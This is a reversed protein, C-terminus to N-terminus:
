KLLAQLGLRAEETRGSVCNSKISTNTAAVHAQPNRHGTKRRGQAHMWVHPHGAQTCALEAMLHSRLSGEPFRTESLGPKVLLPM